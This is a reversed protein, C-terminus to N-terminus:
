NTYEKVKNIVEQLPVNTKIIYDNAGLERVRKIDEEQGLNSLAIVKINKLNADSRIEKLTEFGDKNPMILDLLVLDPKKFRASKLAESGDRAIVVDFGEKTLKVKYINAYFDDDEAVLILKKLSTSKLLTSQDPQKKNEM